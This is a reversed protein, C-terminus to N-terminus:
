TKLDSVRKRLLELLRQVAPNHSQSVRSRVALTRRPTPDVMRATAVNPFATQVTSFSLEPMVSIGIGTEVFAVAAGYDQTELRFSPTFGKTACADLLVRRCVGRNIDNDIWTDTTLEALAIEERNALPHSVPLVILYPDDLLEEVYYGDRVKTFPHEVCIEVDAEQDTGQSYELLRLDLRLNPFEESLQAAISPMWAMGASSIHSVVLSGTRGARLDSTLSELRTAQELLAEAEDAFRNGVASPTIGRGQRIVLELGTERQLIQLQQSVASPTLGLSAAAGNVSGAAIVARFTRLRHLDLM